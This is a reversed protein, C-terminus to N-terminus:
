SKLEGGITSGGTSSGGLVQTRVTKGTADTFIACVVLLGPFPSYTYELEREPNGLGSISVNYGNFKMDRPYNGVVIQYYADGDNRLRQDVISRNQAFVRDTHM